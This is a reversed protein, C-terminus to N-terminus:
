KRQRLSVYLVSSLYLIAAVMGMQYSQEPTSSATSIVNLNVLLLHDGKFCFGHISTIRERPPLDKDANWTLKVKAEGWNVYTTTM